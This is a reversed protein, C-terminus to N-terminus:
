LGFVRRANGALFLARTEDDFGLTDLGELAKDPMIMPYNTGFLVKKRGHSKM